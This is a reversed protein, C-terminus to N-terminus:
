LESVLLTYDFVEDGFFSEVVAVYTGAPLEAEIRSWSGQTDDNYAIEFLSEDYLTLTTDHSATEGPRPGTEIVITATEALTFRFSDVDAFPDITAEVQVAEGASWEIEAATEAADNPESEVIRRVSQVGLKLRYPILGSAGFGAGVSITYDGEALPIMVRSWPSDGSDDNESLLM